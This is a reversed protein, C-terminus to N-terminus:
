VQADQGSMGFTLVRKGDGSFVGREVGQHQIPATLRVGSQTEWLQVIDDGTTMMLRADSSFSIAAVGSHQVSIGLPEGTKVPWFQVRGSSSGTVALQGNPDLAITTVSGEPPLVFGPARFHRLWSALNQRADDKFAASYTSAERFSRVLWHLGRIMDGQECMSQGRRLYQQVLRAHALDRAAIASQAEEVARKRESAEREKADKADVLLRSKEREARGARVAQWTTLSIGGILAAALAIGASFVLKNRRWAKQFKYGVSPPRAVVPENTLHRMIDAALGNATEYRRTRDKELCKM